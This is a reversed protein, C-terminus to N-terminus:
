GGFLRYLGAGYLFTQGDIHFADTRAGYKRLLKFANWNIGLLGRRLVFEEHVIYPLREKIVNNYSFATVVEVEHGAAILGKARLHLDMVSGGATEFNLKSTLFIVKM